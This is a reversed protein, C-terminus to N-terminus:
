QRVHCPWGKYYPDSPNLKVWLIDVQPKHFLFDFVKTKRQYKKNFYVTNCDKVYCRERFIPFCNCIHHDELISEILKGILPLHGPPIIYVFPPKGNKFYITLKGEKIQFTPEPLKKNVYQDQATDTLNCISGPLPPTLKQKKSRKYRKGM